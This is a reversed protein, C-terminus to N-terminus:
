QWGTDLLRAGSGLTSQMVDVVGPTARLAAMTEDAAERESIVKVQPGADITFFAPVGRDQLRRVSELCCLTAANWYVIPPRSSWTVSHMKLCNSEAVAALAGFDRAAIAERAADLDRPQRAVWEKYFPSTNKGLQMAAGSPMKKAGTETIAVTVILSWAEPTAISDVVIADGEVQLEVFGGFLSRAASGSARGAVRAMQLPSVKRDLAACVAVVLAAFSSASSALGAAIPFNCDSRVVVSPRGPGCLDNICQKVRPLMAPAEVGNVLLVDNRAAADFAVHMRTWLSDLTVSISGTDPLNGAVDRKGWYKVLAINPQAQSSARM